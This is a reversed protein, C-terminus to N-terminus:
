YEPSFSCFCSTHDKSTCFMTLQCLSFFNRELKAPINKYILLPRLKNLTHAVHVTLDFMERAVLWSYFNFFHKCEIVVLMLKKSSHFVKLISKTDFILACVTIRM